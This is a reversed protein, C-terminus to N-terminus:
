FGLEITVMLVPISSEWSAVNNQLFPLRCYDGASKHHSRLAYATQERPM